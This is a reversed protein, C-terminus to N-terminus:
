SDVTYRLVENGLASGLYLRHDSGVRLGTPYSLGGENSSVLTDIVAGNSADYRIVRSNLFSSVLLDTEAHACRGNFLALVFSVALFLIGIRQLGSLFYGCIM